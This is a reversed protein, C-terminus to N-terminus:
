DRPISNSLLLPTALAVVPNLSALARGALFIRTFDAVSSIARHAQLELPAGVPTPPSHDPVTRLLLNAM